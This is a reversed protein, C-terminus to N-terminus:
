GCDLTQQRTKAHRKRLSKEVVYGKNPNKIDKWIRRSSVSGKNPLLMTIVKRYLSLEVLTTDSTSGPLQGVVKGGTMAEIKKLKEPSLLGYGKKYGNYNWEAPM